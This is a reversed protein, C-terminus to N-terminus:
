AEAQTPIFEITRLDRLVLLASKAPITAVWTGDERVDYLRELYLDSREGDSAALSNAGFFGYVTTGDAYTVIVFSEQRNDGFAFDYARRTPHVVPMALRRLIASNWGRRLVAGFLVGLLAPLVLIEAFFATRGGSLASTTQILAVPLFGSLYSVSPALILFVLQNLLSLIISEFIVETAKPKEGLVYRSRVSFIIFGSLFFRAFFDFNSPSLFDLM